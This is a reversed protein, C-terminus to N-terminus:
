RVKKKLLKAKLLNASFDNPNANLTEDLRKIIIEYEERTLVPEDLIDKTVSKNLVGTSLMRMDSGSQACGTFLIAILIIGFIKRLSLM